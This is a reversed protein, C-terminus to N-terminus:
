AFRHGYRRASALSAPVLLFVFPDPGGEHPVNVAIARDEAPNFAPTLPVVLELRGKAHRAVGRESADQDETMGRVQRIDRVALENDNPPGIERGLRERIGTARS